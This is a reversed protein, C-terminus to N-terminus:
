IYTNIFLSWLRRFLWSHLKNFKLVMPSFTTKATAQPPLRSRWVPRALTRGSLWKRTQSEENKFVLLLLNNGIWEWNRITGLNRNSNVYCLSTSHLSHHALLIICDLSACCANLVSLGCAGPWESSVRCCFRLGLAPSLLETTPSVRVCPLSHGATLHWSSFFTSLKGLLRATGWWAMLTEVGPIFDCDQPVGKFAAKRAQTDFNMSPLVEWLYCPVCVSVCSIQM